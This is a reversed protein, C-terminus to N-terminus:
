GLLLHYLNTDLANTMVSFLFFLYATFCVGVVLGGGVKESTKSKM